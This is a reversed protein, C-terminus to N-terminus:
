ICSEKVVIFLETSENKEPPKLATVKTTKRERM